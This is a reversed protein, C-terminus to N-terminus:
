EKEILDTSDNYENESGSGDNAALAESIATKIPQIAKLM